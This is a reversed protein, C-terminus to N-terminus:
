VVDVVLHSLCVDQDDLFQPMVTRLPGPAEQLPTRFGGEILFGFLIPQCAEVELSSHNEKMEPLTISYLRLVGTQM